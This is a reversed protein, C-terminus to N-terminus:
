QYCQRQFKASSSYVASFATHNPDNITISSNSFFAGIADIAYMNENGAVVYFSVSYKKEGILPNMLQVELSERVFGPQPPHTNDSYYWLPAFGGYAVGTHALQYGAFNDPVTVYNSTACANFYDTSGATAWTQFWPVAYDILQTPGPCSSYQEFSPNPVLNQGYAYCGSFLSIALIAKKM